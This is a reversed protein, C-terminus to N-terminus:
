LVIGYEEKHSEDKKNSKLYLILLLLLISKSNM